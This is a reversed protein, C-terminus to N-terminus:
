RTICRLLNRRANTDPQDKILVGHCSSGKNATCAYCHRGFVIEPSLATFDTEWFKRNEHDKVKIGLALNFDCDYIFGEYDVSILHRCMINQLTDPNYSNELLEWYRDLRDETLLYKKFRNIPSNAITILKDFSIGHEKKLFHKYETELRSQEPPLCDGPPNYVLDLSLGDTGYGLTNLQKLIKLSTCFVNKGRQKDTADASLGPLSAIVKVKHRKYMDALYSFEPDDLVTLSTRVSINKHVALGEILMPLNPNLEPTGGTFEVDKVDLSLLKELIKVATGRDMNKRGNPSAGIHCHTCAQNCRDGMNVQFIKVQKKTIKARVADIM